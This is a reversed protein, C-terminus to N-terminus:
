TKSRILKAHIVLFKILKINKGKILNKIKDIECPYGFLHTIVIGKTNKTISKNLKDVDINLDNESVDVLKVKLELENAIKVYLPFSMVSFIVEDNKKFFKKLSLYFGLRASPLSIVKKAPFRKALTEQLKDFSKKKNIPFFINKILGLVDKLGLDISFFPIAM